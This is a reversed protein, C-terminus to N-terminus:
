PAGPSPPAAGSGSPEGSGAPGTAGPSPSPVGAALPALVSRHLTDSSIWFLVPPLGDAGDVVYMSRLDEWGGNDPPLRYQERFTGDAKDFAVIRANGPDYGYLVGRRRDSGSTVFTYEPAVRLLTDGPDAAEWGESHGSVFRAIKGNETVFIDGDIYLSTMRDVSRTTALRGTPQGHYGSGDLAPSYSFIQKESPDVVYFNYLGAEPRRIYTGIAIVDDGWEAAGKIRVLTLTGKGAEDSPRWRWLVNAADLVLVDPGGATLLNPAGAVAGAAELGERIVLTAKVTQLNIRWVASTTRDLIYPA